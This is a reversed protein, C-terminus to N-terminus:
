VNMAIYIIITWLCIGTLLYFWGQRNKKKYGEGSHFLTFDEFLLVLIPGFLIILLKQVETYSANAKIRKTRRKYNSERKNRNNRKKNQDDVSIGRNALESQALAVVDKRWNEPTEIIEILQDTSREKIPPHIEDM